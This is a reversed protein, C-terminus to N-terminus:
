VHIKIKIKSIYKIVLILGAFVLLWNIRAQYRVVVNSFTGNVAANFFVGLLVITILLYLDIDSAKNTKLFYIIILMLSIGCLVYYFMNITTLTPSSYAQRGTKYAKEEHKFERHIWYDPGVGPKLHIIDVKFTVLQIFTSILGKYGFMALYSPDTFVEHLIEKYEEESKKWGGTKFFPSEKNWVFRSVRTPFQDRYYCLTYRGEQCNEDLFDDLIGTEMLRAMLIVHRSNSSKFGKDDVYHYANIFIVSAFYALLLFAGKVFLEKYSYQSVYKGLVMLGIFMALLIYQTSFHTIASFAICILAFVKVPWKTGPTFFLYIGLVMVPAFVDAMILSSFWGMGTFLTLLTVIIFHIPWVNKGKFITQLSLYILVSVLLGQAFVVPWLSFRWSFARVFLPYGMPNLDGAVLEVSQAIYNGSDFYMIPYGNYLAPMSIIFSSVAFYILRPLLKTHKM